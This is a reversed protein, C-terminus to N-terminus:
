GATVTAETDLIAATAFIPIGDCDTPIPASAKVAGGAALALELSRSSRLMSQAGYSMFIADPNQGGNAKRYALLCDRLMDDDLGTTATVNALRALSNANAVHLAALSTLDGIWGPEFGTVAGDSNKIAIDGKRFEIDAAALIKSNESFALGVATKFGNKVFFVSTNKGATGAGALTVNASDVLNVAGDFGKADASTGYWVQSALHEFAARLVAVAEDVCQEDKTMVGNSMVEAETIEARGSLIKLTATRLEFQSRSAIVAEGIARFAVTPNAVRALTQLVTGKVTGADLFQMEPVAKVAEEVIGATTDVQGANTVLDIIKAM